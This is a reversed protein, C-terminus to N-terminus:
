KPLEITAERLFNGIANKSRALSKGPENWVKGIKRLVAVRTGSTPQLDSDLIIVNGDLIYEASLTQDGEPSDQAISPNYRDIATKRLKRGGIYVDIENISTPTFNLTYDISGDSEITQTLTTDNYNINEEPGQGYATLGQNYTNRVGTGLTGRRLQRVTNGQVEFYEIREGELFLVGPINKAKDPQFIGSTDELVIRVDYYNLPSAIVYSNDQNLRKYHTRNLMDKFIRYGFKDTVPQTGFQIIDIVDNIEPDNTLQIADLSTVLSYDVNPTLLVGNLAVWAYNANAITGILPIYGSSILNRTTSESPSIDIPVDSVVKYTFREFSNVDHNSFQYIEVTSDAAPAEAFTLIEGSVYIVDDVTLVTSDADNVSAVFQDGNIFGDRIDERISQIVVNNGNVSVITGKYVTSTTVSELTLEGGVEAVSSITDVEFEIQTDVFYYEANKIVYIDLRTGAPAIDPTLLEVRVNLPDFAYESSTLQVYDAFVIVDVAELSEGTFQWEEIDYVRSSTTTYSISYGPNLITNDVKVLINHSVPENNFPVPIIEGDFMHTTAVGDAVFTNDIIVESYTKIKTAYISYQIFDGEALFNQSFVIKLRNSFEDTDETEFATYGAGEAVVEGNITVLTSLEDTWAAATIFTVTSGDSLSTNTDILDAGNTGITTIALNLNSITNEFILVQNIYDISYASKDLIVNDVKVIVGDNSQPIGPLAFETTTGDLNYNSTAVIGVGESPRHYVRIDLTDVIEGPVLEEPGKSTTPTVFGDGDVVIEGAEIGTATSFTGGELQTDFSTVSSAGDSTSKRIVFLDGIVFRIADDLVITTTVGDGVIPLLQANPNNPTGVTSGDYAPDDIRVNNIYFNYEVGDELPQSLEFISTSGDIIFVEDQADDFTDWPLSTWGAVDWGQENGFGFSDIQVGTYDIGDMLQSLDKGLMGTTPNYFFNIRDAAKLISVDKKYQIEISTEAGPPEEFEIFGFYRDYGKSTDIENGVVFSSALQEIGNVIVTYNDTRVSIPWELTFKEKASTGIFTETKDLETVLYSGSVRDFKITLHTNRVKGNGLIAVAKAEHGGEDVTGIVNVIPAKYYPGGVAEIVITRISGRSLFATAVTGKDGEVEIRPTELYGLGADAIDIRIIEYGNNNTWENFPAEFYKSVVNFLADGDQIAATTVITRTEEDYSPPLDFDTTLSQTPELKEYSSIYERVKTKYPKVENVYDEYNELNDNQFTIKQALEGLNHKARVFSTKFAWDIDPQESFAYRMSAFFLKNWEVALDGILLDDRLSNLINRLEFIPERDYFASDYINSDFGSTTSAYDYLRTSLQITGDQRGITNYNITYDQTVQDNIKQLLLWGGSGISEVKIVDGVSDSLGSLEYTQGIISNIAAQDSYGEAYWDAYDWYRTTDYAQNDTRSWEQSLKDWTYIAWRGGIEEDASVLVSFKRVTLTASDTYNKGGSKVNTSVVQGLNNITTEIVANTGKNDSIKVAPAISYGRGSNIINVGVIRTNEIVPELIAQEIKAVGVFRLQAISDIATDYKGEAILPPEDVLLLSTFDKGDVVQSKIMVDNVREVLQKVAELRNVFM